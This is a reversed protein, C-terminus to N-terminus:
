VRRPPTTDLSPNSRPAQECYRYPVAIPGYMERLLTVNNEGFSVVPSSGRLIHQAQLRLRLRTELKLREREAFSADSHVTLVPVRCVDCSPSSYCTERITWPDNLLHLLILYEFVTFLTLIRIAGSMDAVSLAYAVDRLIIKFRPHLTDRSISRHFRYTHTM